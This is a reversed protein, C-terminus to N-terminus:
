IIHGFFLYQLFSSHKTWQPQYSLLWPLFYTFGCSVLGTLNICVLCFYEFLLMKLRKGSLKMNELLFSIRDNLFHHPPVIFM